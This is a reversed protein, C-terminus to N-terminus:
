GIIKLSIIKSKDKEIKKKLFEAHQKDIMFEALNRSSM